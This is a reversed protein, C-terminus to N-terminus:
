INAKNKQANDKLGSKILAKLDMYVSSSAYM